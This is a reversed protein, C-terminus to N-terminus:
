LFYLSVLQKPPADIWSSMQYQQNNSATFSLNYPQDGRFNFLFSQPFLPEFESAKHIEAIEEKSLKFKLADAM